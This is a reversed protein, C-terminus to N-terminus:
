KCPSINTHTPTPLPGTVISNIFALTIIILFVKLGNVLKAMYKKQIGVVYLNGSKSEYIIYIRDTDYIM